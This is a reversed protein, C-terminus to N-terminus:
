SMCHFARQVKYNTQFRSFPKLKYFLHIASLLSYITSKLRSKVNTQKNKREKIFAVVNQFLTAQVEEFTFIFHFCSIVIPVQLKAHPWMERWFHM